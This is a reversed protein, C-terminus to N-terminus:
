NHCKQNDVANLHSIRSYSAKLCKANPPRTDSSVIYQLILTMILYLTNQFQPNQPDNEFIMNNEKGLRNDISHQKLNFMSM